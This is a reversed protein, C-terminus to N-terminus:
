NQLKYKLCKKSKQHQKLNHKTILSNCKPCNIKIKFKQKTDEYYKKYYEKYYENNDEYYKKNYEKYYEKNEERYKKFDEKNEQYHKKVYKKRNTFANYTNLGDNISNYKNIYFQEVLLKIKNNCKRKYVGLIELEIKINKERIHKYVLLNHNKCNENYCNNKHEITRKKIDNTSGIYNIDKIKYIYFVM